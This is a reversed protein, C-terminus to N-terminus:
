TVPPDPWPVFTWYEGPALDLPKNVRWVITMEFEDRGLYRFGEVRATLDLVRTKPKPLKPPAVPLRALSPSCLADFGDTRLESGCSASPKVPSPKGTPAKTSSLFSTHARPAGRRRTTTAWGRSSPSTNTGARASCGRTTSNGDSLCRPPKETPLLGLTKARHERSSGRRPEM